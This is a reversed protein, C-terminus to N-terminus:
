VQSYIATSEANCIAGLSFYPHRLYSAAGGPLQRLALMYRSCGQKVIKRSSLSSIHRLAIGAQEQVTGYLLSIRFNYLFYNPIMICGSGVGVPQM